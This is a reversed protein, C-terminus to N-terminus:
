QPRADVPIQQMIQVPFTPIQVKIRSKHIPSYGAQNGLLLTTAEEPLGGFFPSSAWVVPSNSWTGSPFRSHILGFKRNSSWWRVKPHGDDDTNTRTQIRAAARSTCGGHNLLRVPWKLEREISKQLGIELPRTDSRVTAQNEHPFQILPKHSLSSISCGKASGRPFFVCNGSASRNRWDTYL